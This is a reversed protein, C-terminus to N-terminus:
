VSFGLLYLNYLVFKLCEGGPNPSRALQNNHIQPLGISIPPAKEEGIQISGEKDV